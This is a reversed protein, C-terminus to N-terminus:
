RRPVAPVVMENILVKGHDVTVADAQKLLGYSSGNSKGSRWVVHSPLSRALALSSATECVSKLVAPNKYDATPDLSSYNLKLM